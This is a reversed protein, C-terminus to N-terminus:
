GNGRPCAQILRLLNDSDFDDALRGLKAAAQPSLLRAESILETVEDFEGVRAADAIWYSWVSAAHPV